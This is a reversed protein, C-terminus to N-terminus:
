SCTLLVNPVSRNIERGNMQGEREEREREGGGGEGERGREGEGERGGEWGRGGRVVPLKTSIGNSISTAGV